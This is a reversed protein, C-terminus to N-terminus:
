FYPIFFGILLSKIQSYFQAVPPLLGRRRKWTALKKLNMCAFTQTVQM